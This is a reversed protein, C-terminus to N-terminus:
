ASGSVPLGLGAVPRPICSSSRRSRSRSLTGVAVGVLGFRHILLISLVMNAVGTGLNVFALMRHEGAGKLVTNGTANGVRIAVAMALIQIIPVAGAM